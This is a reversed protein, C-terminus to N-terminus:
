RAESGTARDSGPTVGRQAETEEAIHQPSSHNGEDCARILPLFAAPTLHGIVLIGGPAPLSQASNSSMQVSDVFGGLPHKEGLTERRWAGM